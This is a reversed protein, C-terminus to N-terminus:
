KHTATEVLSGVENQHTREGAGRDGKPTVTGHMRTTVAALTGDLNDMARRKGETPWKRAHM